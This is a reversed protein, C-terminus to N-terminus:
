GRSDHRSVFSASRESAGGVEMKMRIPVTLCVRTGRGAKSEIQLDAGPLTQLRKQINRIGIGGRQQGGSSDWEMGVGDDEITAKLCENELGIKLSVCGHGEKEFLGHRIANEVFPQICLTPILLSTCSEEVECIFDFDDDFRAKEIEVYAEVLELERYLPVYQTNRDMELIYRLYQSLMSLLYAAKKGDTYCFSVVSSLANYLFHPKIQAQHFAYESQIAEHISSKMAILIQIRAILTEADFPKTVYDNAGARYGLVIDHPTDKVTAFLIPLDIISYQERLSRCLEIGSVEPMMVDLIVLDVQPHEKLKLLAEQASFATIVNYNYRKLINLLVQINAAEDDVILVTPSSQHLIDLSLREETFPQQSTSTAAIEQQSISEEAKPLTFMMRTGRGVESWDVQISGGMQEILKRSIYLGVGMSTYGDEAVATERQDFATFISELRDSAIGTGTDEVYLHIQKGVRREKVTIAGEKTHKIANHLLNYMVQRLRNEDATVIVHPGVRNVLRVSKGALEFQLVDFVMQTVVRVDVKKAHLRLEGHKLRTVDILDHILMSLKISTDKILGVNQQQELSLPHSEDELLYAAINQIGHLPTKMEHSTYTLFEDKLQNAVFLQHTLLETQEFAGTFRVALLLNLCTLFGIVATKGVLDSPVINESYLIGDTLFILLFVSAAIFWIMEKRKAPDGMSRNYLVFLRGLLYLLLIEMYVLYIYEYESHVPYPLVFIAAIYILIPIMTMLLKKISMIRHDFSHLFLMLIIASLYVSLDQMKYAFDFPIQPFFRLLVKEGYVMQGMLLTLIYVGSYLYSKEKTRLFYFSLHYFGLIVLIIIAALDTGMQISNLRAIDEPLGFQISNIIGGTIYMFNSVQIVIEIEKTRAYFFTAYPTNGPTHEDLVPAPHGSEGAKEGNIFLQHSMRINRTKIAFMENAEPVIVKLRYTGFGKRNMGSGDAQKGKWTQPVTLYEEQSAHNWQRFDEPRLLEGEYFEWEGDLNALGQEHFSWASLDLVGQKALPSKQLPVTKIYIAFFTVLSLLLIGAIGILRIYNARKVTAEGEMPM